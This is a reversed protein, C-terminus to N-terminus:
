RLVTAIQQANEAILETKPFDGDLQVQVLPAAFISAILDRGVLALNFTDLFRLKV